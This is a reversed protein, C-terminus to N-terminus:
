TSSTDTATCWLYYEIGYCGRFEISWTSKNHGAFLSLVLIGQPSLQSAIYVWDYIPTWVLKLYVSCRTVVPEVRRSARPNIALIPHQARTVVLEVQDQGSRLVTQLRNQYRTTLCDTNLTTWNPNLTLNMALKSQIRVSLELPTWEYPRPMIPSTSADFSWCNRSSPLLPPELQVKRWPRKSM